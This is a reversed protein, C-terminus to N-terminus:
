AAYTSSWDACSSAFVAATRRARCPRRRRRPGRARGRRGCGSPAISVTASDNPSRSGFISARSASRSGLALLPGAPVQMSFSRQGAARRPSGAASRRGLPGLVGVVQEGVGLREVLPDCSARSCRRRLDGVARRPRSSSTAVPLTVPSSSNQDRVSRQSKWALTSPARTPKSHTAATTSSFSGSSASSSVSGSRRAAPAARRLLPLAVAEHGVVLEGVVLDLLEGVRDVRQGLRQRSSVAATSTASGLGGTEDAPPSGRRRRPEGGPRGARARDAARGAAARRRPRRGRRRRRVGNWPSCWAPMTVGPWSRSCKAANSTVVSSRSSSTASSCRTSRPRRASSPRAAPRAIPATSPATRREAAVVGALREPQRRAAEREGEAEPGASNRSPSPRSRNPRASRCGSARRAAGASGPRRREVRRAAPPSRHTWAQASSGCTATCAIRLRARIPKPVTPSASTAARSRGCRTSWRGVCVVGRLRNPKLSPM